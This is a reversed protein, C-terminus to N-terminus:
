HILSGFYLTMRNQFGEHNKSSQLLMGLMGRSDKMVQGLDTKKHVEEVAREVWSLWIVVQEKQGEFVSPECTRYFTLWQSDRM